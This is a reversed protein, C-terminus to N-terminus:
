RWRHVIRWTRGYDSTALLTPRGARAVLYLGRGRAFATAGRGFDVEPRAVRPEPTWRSGGDRTVYLTGRSEWLIGFGDPAFSIGFPYGYSEIGGHFRPRPWNVEEAGVHWHRGGDTTRYVAKSENGAGPEGLCVIWGLAPTVLDALASFALAQTCPSPRRRWTRGGDTTALLLLADHNRVAVRRFGFGVEPTAFRAHYRLRFPQWSRGGDLTRLARGGDEVAIASRAGATELDIVPRRTRLLLRFSRGGDLTLSIEGRTCSEDRCTGAGLLGRQASWFAIANPAV